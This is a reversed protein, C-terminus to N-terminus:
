ERGGAAAVKRGRHPRQRQRRDSPRRRRRPRAPATAENGGDVPANNGRLMGVGDTLPRSSTCGGLIAPSKANAFEHDTKPTVLKSDRIERPKEPGLVLERTSVSRSPLYRAFVDEFDELRDGKLRGEDGGLEIARRVSSRTVGSGRRQRPPPPLEAIMRLVKAFPNRPIAVEAMQFAVYRGHSVVKSNRHCHM